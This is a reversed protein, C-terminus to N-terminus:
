VGNIAPKLRDLPVIEHRNAVELTYNKDAHKLDRYPGNYPLQLPTRVADHCLFVHTSTVLIKSICLKRQPQMRVPSAQLLQMSAKLKAFYSAPDPTDTIGTSSFFEGPLQLTTGYILEVATCHPDEKLATRIGLLVMPLNEFCRSPNAHPKLSVKLQRHSQEVLSNSSPHYAKIHFHKSGLLCM